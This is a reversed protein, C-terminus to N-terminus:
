IIELCVNENGQECFDLIFRKNQILVHSINLTTANGIRLWIVKPPIGKIVALDYFDADFSVIVYNNIRAFDWIESDSKGSFGVDSCPYL